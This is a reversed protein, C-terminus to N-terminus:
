PKGALCPNLTVISLGVAECPFATTCMPRFGLYDIFSRGCGCDSYCDRHHLWIPFCWEDISRLDNKQRKVIFGAASEFFKEKLCARVCNSHPDDPTHTCACYSNNAYTRSFAKGIRSYHGCNADNPGLPDYAQPGVKKTAKPPRQRPVIRILVGRNQSRDQRTDNGSVYTEGPAASVSTVKQTFVDQLWGHGDSLAGRLNAPRTSRLGANAGKGWCDSYGVMELNDLDQVMWIPGGHRRLLAQDIPKVLIQVDGKSAPVDAKGVGFGGLIWEEDAKRETLTFQESHSAAVEGKEPAPCVAKRQLMLDSVAANGVRQLTLVSPTSM